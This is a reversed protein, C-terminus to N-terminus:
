PSIERYARPKGILRDLLIELASLLGLSTAIEKELRDAACYICALAQACAARTMDNRLTKSDFLDVYFKATAFKNVGNAPSSDGTPKEEAASADSTCQRMIALHALALVACPAIVNHCNGGIGTMDDAAIEERIKERYLEWELWGGAVELLRTAPHQGSAQIFKGSTPDMIMAPSVNVHFLALLADAVLMGSVFSLSPTWEEDNDDDDDGEDSKDAKMQRFNKEAMLEEDPYVLNGVM